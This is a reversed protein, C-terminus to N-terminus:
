NVREVKYGAKKLLNIVGDEGPMHGAGVAIFISGPFEMFVPIQRVWKKNRDPLLRKYLAPFEALEQKSMDDIADMDGELWMKLLEDVDFTSEEGLRGLAMKLYKVQDDMKMGASINYQESTSEFGNIYQGNQEARKVLITEVGYKRELPSTKDDPATIIEEAFWPKIRLLYDSPIKKKRLLGVVKNLTKEDLYNALSDDSNFLGRTRTAGVIVNWSFQAPALEFIVYQASDFDALLDKSQWDTGYPLAHITGFIHITTDSDKVVWRAPGDAQLPLSFLFVLLIMYKAINKM